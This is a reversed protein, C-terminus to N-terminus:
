RVYASVSISQQQKAQWVINVTCLEGMCHYSGSGHPLLNVNIRNWEALERERVNASHNVRLRELMSALQTTAVSHLYAEQSHQLASLQMGTISLLGVSLVLLAILVEILAFGKM